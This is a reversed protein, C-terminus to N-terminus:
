YNSHNSELSTRNLEIVGALPPGKYDAKDCWFDPPSLISVLQVRNHCTQSGDKEKFYHCEREIGLRNDNGYPPSLIDLFAAPGDVSAIEHLNHMDPTLCCAPDQATITQLPHKISSFIGEYNGRSPEMTYSQISVSGHIVKLLGYMGPHDHLPLRVGRKLIFVCITVDNDEYLLMYTVPAGDRSEFNGRDTLLAAELNIDNSTLNSLLGNLHNVKELSVASTPRLERSFTRVALSGIKQMLAAM